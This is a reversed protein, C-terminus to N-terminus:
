PTPPVPDRGKVWEDYDWVIGEELEDKLDATADMQKQTMEEHILKLINANFDDVTKNRHEEFLDKGTQMPIQALYQLYGQNSLSAWVYSLELNKRVGIGYYYAEALRTMCYSSGHNACPRYGNVAETLESPALNNLHETMRNLAEYQPNNSRYGTGWLLTTALFGQNRYGGNISYRIYRLMKGLSDSTYPILNGQEDYGGRGMMRAALRNAPYPYKHDALLEMFTWFPLRLVQPENLLKGQSDVIKDRYQIIFDNLSEGASPKIHSENEVIRAYQIMANKDWQWAHKILELLATKDLVSPIGINFAKKQMEEAYEISWLQDQPLSSIQIEPDSMTMANRVVFFSCSVFFLICLVFYFFNSKKTIM